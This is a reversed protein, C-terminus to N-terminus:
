CSCYVCCAHEIDRSKLHLLLTAAVICMVSYDVRVVANVYLHLKSYRGCFGLPPCRAV